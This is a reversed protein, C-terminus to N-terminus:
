GSLWSMMYTAAEAAAARVAALQATTFVQQVEISSVRVSGDMFRIVLGVVFGGNALPSAIATISKTNAQRLSWATSAAAAAATQTIRTDTARQSVQVMTSGPFSGNSYTVETATAVPAGALVALTLLLTTLFARMRRM